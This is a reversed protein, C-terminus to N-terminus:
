CQLCSNRLRTLVSGASELEEGVPKLGVGGSGVGSPRQTERISFQSVTGKMLM